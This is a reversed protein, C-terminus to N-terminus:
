ALDVEESDSTWDLEEENVMGALRVQQITLKTTASTAQVRAQAEAAAKAREKVATVEHTACELRRAKVIKKISQRLNQNRTWRSTTRKSTKVLPRVFWCGIQAQM